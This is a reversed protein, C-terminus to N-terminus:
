VTKVPDRARSYHIDDPSSSGGTIIFSLAHPFLFITRFAAEGRIKQDILIALLYGFTLCGGIYGVGFIGMNTMAVSWRRNSFLREWNEWGVFTMDPMARSATFSVLVTWILGGVFVIAVVTMIPAMTIQPAHRRLM